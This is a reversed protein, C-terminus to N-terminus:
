PVFEKRHNMSQVSVFPSAGPSCLLLTAWSSDWDTDLSEESPVMHVLSVLWAGGRHLDFRARGLRDTLARQRATTRPEGATDQPWAFIVAGELPRGEFRVEVVLERPGTQALGALPVIELRHGLPRSVLAPDCGAGDADFIAKCYRAYRERGPTDLLGAARRRALPQYLGDDLLYANFKASELVSRSSTSCYAFLHRGPSALRCWGAPAAGAEGALAEEAIAGDQMWLHRFEVVRWPEYPLEEGAFPEGVFLRVAIEDGVAGSDPAVLFEHAQAARPAGLLTFVLLVAPPSLRHRPISRMDFTVVDPCPPNSTTSAPVPLTHHVFGRAM